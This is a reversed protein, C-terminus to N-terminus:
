YIQNMERGCYANSLLSRFLNFRAVKKVNVELLNGRLTFLPM